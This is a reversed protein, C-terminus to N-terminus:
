NTLQYLPPPARFTLLGNSINFPENEFSCKETKCPVRGARGILTKSPKLVSMHTLKSCVQLYFTAWQSPASIQTNLYQNFTSMKSSKASCSARTLKSTLTPTSISRSSTGCCSGKAAFRVSRMRPGTRTNDNRTLLSGNSPRRESSACTAPSPSKAPTAESMFGYSAALPSCRAVSGAPTSSRWPQTSRKGTTPCCPRPPSPNRATTVCTLCTPSTKMSLTITPGYRFCLNLMLVSTWSYHCFARFEGWHNHVLKQWNVRLSLRPLWVSLPWQNEELHAQAPDDSHVKFEPSHCVRAQHPVGHSVKCM